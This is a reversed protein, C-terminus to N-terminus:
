TCTFYTRLDLSCIGRTLLGGNLSISAVVPIKTANRMYNRDSFEGSNGMDIPIGDPNCSTILIAGLDDNYKHSLKNALSSACVEQQKHGELIWRNFMNSTRGHAIVIAIKKGQKAVQHLFRLAEKSEETLPNRVGGLGLVRNLQDRINSVTSGISLTAENDIQNILKHTYSTDRFFELNELTFIPRTFYLDFNYKQGYHTITIDKTCYFNRDVIDGAEKPKQIPNLNPNYNESSQIGRLKSRANSNFHQDWYNEKQKIASHTQASQHNSGLEIESYHQALYESTNPVSFNSAKPLAGDTM